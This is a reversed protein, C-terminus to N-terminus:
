ERSVSHPCVASLSLDEARPDVLSSPLCVSCRESSLCFASLLLDEAITKGRQQSKAVVVVIACLICV